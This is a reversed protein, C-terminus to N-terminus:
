PQAYLTVHSVDLPFVGKAQQDRFWAKAWVKADAWTMSPTFVIDRVADRPNPQLSFGWSGRGRPSKMHSRIFPSDDIEICARKTKRTIFPDRGIAEPHHQVMFAHHEEDRIRAEEATDHMCAGSSFAEESLSFWKGTAAQAIGFTTHPTRQTETVRCAIAPFPTPNITTM